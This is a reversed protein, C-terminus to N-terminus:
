APLPDTLSIMACLRAETRALVWGNVVTVNHSIWDREVNSVLASLEGVALGDPALLRSLQARDAEDPHTLLYSEGVQRLAIVDDPLERTLRSLWDEGGAVPYRGNPVGCAINFSLVACLGTFGCLWERRSLTVDVAAHHSQQAPESASFYVM